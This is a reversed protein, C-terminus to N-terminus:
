SVTWNVRLFYNQSQKEAVSVFCSCFLTAAVVLGTKNGHVHVCLVLASSALEMNTQTAPTFMQTRPRLHHPSLHVACIKVTSYM